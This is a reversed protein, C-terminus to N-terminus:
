GPSSVMPPPDDMALNGSAKSMFVGAVLTLSPSFSIRLRITPDSSGFRIIGFAFCFVSINAPLKNHKNRSMLNCGTAAIPKAFQQEAAFNVAERRLFLYPRKLPGM